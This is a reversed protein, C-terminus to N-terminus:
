FMPSFEGADSPFLITGASIGLFRGSEALNLNGSDCTLSWHLLTLVNSCKLPMPMVAFDGPPDYAPTMAGALYHYVPFWIGFGGCPKEILEATM